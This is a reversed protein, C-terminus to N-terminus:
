CLAVVSMFQMKEYKYQYHISTCHGLPQKTHKGKDENACSVPIGGSGELSGLSSLLSNYLQQCTYQLGSLLTCSLYTCVFYMSVYVSHQNFNRYISTDPM